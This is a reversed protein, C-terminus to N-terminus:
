SELEGMRRQLEGRFADGKVSFSGRLIDRLRGSSPDMCSAFRNAAKASEKSM